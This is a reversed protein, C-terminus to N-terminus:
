ITDEKGFFSVKQLKKQKLIKLIKIDLLLIITDQLYFCGEAVSGDRFAIEM